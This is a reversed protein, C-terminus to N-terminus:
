GAQAVAVIDIPDGGRRLEATVRPKAAGARGLPDGQRVADGAKVALAALGTVTTTWGGGHDVIVIDGYSRFPGAYAVRGRAPARVVAGPASAVTLGRSTVGSDFVEGFGTEVSGSVPLVYRPRGEHPPVGDDPGPPRPMPDPLDALRARVVGAAQTVRMRDAIDRAEEGLGLAREQEDAAQDALRQSRRLATSELSAYAQQRQKLLKQSQDLAQAAREADARLQSSRALEARLGATRAAIVPLTDQLLLRVHVIDSVSGPQAIALAPPRRAMTGLAAVLRLIPQQKQEIHRRQDAQLAAILGIRAGAAAVDAQAAKVEEGLAAAKARAKAAESQAADAAQMLAAAHAEARAAEDKASLLAARQDDLGPAAAAAGAIAAILALITIRGRV